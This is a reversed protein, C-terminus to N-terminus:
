VPRIVGRRKKTEETTNEDTESEEIKIDEVTIKITDAVGSSATVTIVAEGIGTGIIMGSSTVECITIDSSSYNLRDTTMIPYVTPKLTLAEGPQISKSNRAIDVSTARRIYCRIVKVTRNGNFDRAMITYTGENPVMFQVHDEEYDLTEGPLKLFDAASHKGELLKVTKIGSQLDYIDADVTITSYDDSVSFYANEIVPSLTDETILYTRCCENGAGDMCYFTYKGGKQILLSNDHIVLGATGKEFEEPTREGIFYRLAAIGSGGEDSPNITIQIGESTYDKFISFEPATEDPLPKQSLQLASYLSPIGPYKMGDPITYMPKVSNILLQKVEVASFDMDLSFLLAAMASVHAAAMSSGGMYAYDNVVTSLVDYSPIAFDVTNNGYNSRTALIGGSNVFAASVVNPLNFCAPYVPSVDNDTGDNGAATCFLMSSGAIAKYLNENKTYSGWSINCVKAGHAEAYKIAKIADTTNKSNDKGHIKLVMLQINGCSALGAVGVGNNAEAAIIGAVHTGHDDNDEPDAKLEETDPDLVYSCLINNDDCFNWGNIDDIHGDGDDDIGNDPIEGENIWIKNKLDEHNIDIGTDIIAVIVPEESKSLTEYLAWGEPADVDINSTSDFSNQSDSFSDDSIASLTVAETDSMLSVTESDPESTSKNFTNPSKTDISDCFSRFSYIGVPRFLLMAILIFALFRKM